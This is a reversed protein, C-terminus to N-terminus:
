VLVSALQENEVLRWVCPSPCRLPLEFHNIFFGHNKHLFKFEHWVILTLDTTIQKLFYFIILRWETVSVIFYHFHLHMFIDNRFAIFRYKTWCETFTIFVVTHLLPDLIFMLTITLTITGDVDVKNKTNPNFLLELDHLFLLIFNFCREDM